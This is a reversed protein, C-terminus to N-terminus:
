VLFGYKLKSDESSKLNKRNKVLFSFVLGPVGFGWVLLAPM